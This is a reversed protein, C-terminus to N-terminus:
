ILGHSVRDFFAYTMLDFKHRSSIKHFPYEPNTFYEVFHSPPEKRMGGPSAEESIGPLYNLGLWALALDRCPSFHRLSIYRSSSAGGPIDLPPMSLMNM